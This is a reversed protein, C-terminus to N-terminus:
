GKGGSDRRQRWWRRLDFEGRFKVGMGVDTGDPGFSVRTGVGVIWKGDSHLWRTNPLRWALGPRISIVRRDEASGFASAAYTLELTRTLRDGHWVLGTTVTATDDLFANKQRRGTFGTIAAFDAGFSTFGSLGRIGPIPRAFTVFPSIHRRGDTIDEPPSGIPTAFSLGVVTDVSELLGLRPLREKAAVRLSSLGFRSGVPAAGMGHAIYGEIEASVETAPGLGYRVGLPVRLHDHRLFDGFHPRFILRLRQPSETQPLETEFVGPM